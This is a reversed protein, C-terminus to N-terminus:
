KAKGKTSLSEGLRAETHQIGDKKINSSRNSQNLEEAAKTKAYNTSHM